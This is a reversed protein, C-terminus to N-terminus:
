ETVAEEASDEEPSIEESVAEEASNEEPSIEESVAEETLNEEPVTEETVEEGSEDSTDENEDVYSDEEEVFVPTRISSLDGIILEESDYNPQLAQEAKVANYATLTVGGIAIGLIIVVVAIYLFNERKAKKKQKELIVKRNAKYDKYQEVKKKSV